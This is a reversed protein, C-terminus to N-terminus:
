IELIEINKSSLGDLWERTVPIVCVHLTQGAFCSFLGINGHYYLFPPPSNIISLETTHASPEDAREQLKAFLEAMIDKEYEPFLIQLTYTCEQCFLEYGRETYDHMSFDFTIGQVFDSDAPIYLTITPESLWRVNSQFRYQKTAYLSFPSNDYSLCSWEDLPLIFEEGHDASYLYNYSAIFDDGTITFTLGNERYQEAGIFLDDPMLSTDSTPPDDSLTSEPLVNESASPKESSASERPPKIELASEALASSNNKNGAVNNTFIMVSIVIISISIAGFLVIEVWKLIKRNM